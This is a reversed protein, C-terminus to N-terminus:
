SGPKALLKAARRWGERELEGRLRDLREKRLSDLAKLAESGFQTRFRNTLGSPFRLSICQAEKSVEFGKFNAESSSPERKHSLFNLALADETKGSGNDVILSMSMELSVGTDPDNLRRNLSSSLRGLPTQSLYDALNQRDTATMSGLTREPTPQDAKLAALVKQAQAVAADEVLNKRVLVLYWEKEQVIWAKATEGKIKGAVIEEREREAEENKEGESTLAM